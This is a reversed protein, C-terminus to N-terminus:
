RAGSAHFIEAWQKPEFFEATFHPAFDAYTFDPPYNEKMFEVINRNPNPGKWWYWFWAGVYSPVTFVGWHLFIGFKAEDYWQPLPRNDLSEWNPQYRVGSVATCLLWLGLTLFTLMRTPLLEMILITTKLNTYVHTPKTCPDLLDRGPLLLPACGCSVSQNNELQHIRTYAKYLPRTSWTRSSTFPRLWLFSVPQKWTPTYTHLSQVPTSYIVDPFFYLPAVVPFQRELAQPKTARSNEAITCIPPVQSTTRMTWSSHSLRPPRGPSDTRVLRRTETSTFIKQMTSRCQDCSTGLIDWSM